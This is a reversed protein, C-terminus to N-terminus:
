RAGGLIWGVLARVDADKLTPNPPMPVAGWVGAGGQKVKSALRSEADKDQAYKASVDRFAPGVIKQTTGHCAMCGATKALEAPDPGKAPAAAAVQKAAGAGEVPGISRSQEALNGHSDRAHEPYESSLKVETVCNQMCAVNKTDPRGGRSMFGHDSTFGDRNPMKFAILSARDLAGDPPMLDNLHLVYATLAYVEDVSLTKPATFPMARNIYDWLTTAHSLKSGVTRVPQDSALSGVGGAIAMWENSEGFTGHCSACKEDYIQQGKEVTGKGPPLGTGDPRVDIDWGAIEQATAPKGFGFRGAAAGPKADPKAPAAAFVTLPMAVLAAVTAAVALRTRL